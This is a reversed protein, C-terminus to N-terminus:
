IEQYYRNHGNMYIQKVDRPNTEGYNTKKFQEMYKSTNKTMSGVFYSVHIVRARTAAYVGRQPDNWVGVKNGKLKEELLHRFQIPLL